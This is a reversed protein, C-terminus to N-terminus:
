LWVWVWRIDNGRVRHPPLAYICVDVRPDEQELLDFERRPCLEMDLWKQNQTNIFNVIMEM